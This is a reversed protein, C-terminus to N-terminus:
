HWPLLGMKFVHFYCMIWTRTVGNRVALLCRAFPWVWKFLAYLSVVFHQSITAKLLPTIEKLSRGLCIDMNNSNQHIDNSMYVTYVHTTLRKALAIDICSLQLTNCLKCEKGRSWLSTLTLLPGLFFFFNASVLPNSQALYKCWSYLQYFLTPHLKNYYLILINQDTDGYCNISPTHTHTHTHNHTHTHTDTKKKKPGKSLLFFYIIIYYLM